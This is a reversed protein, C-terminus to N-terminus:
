DQPGEPSLLVEAGILPLLRAIAERYLENDVTKVYEAKRQQWDLTRILGPIVFSPNIDLGSVEVNAPRSKEQSSVPLCIVQGIVENYARSSLVLAPRRKGLESGKSPFFNLLIIDGRDPIYDAM